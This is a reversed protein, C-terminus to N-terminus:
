EINGPEEASRIGSIRNNEGLVVIRPRHGSAEERSLIGYAM